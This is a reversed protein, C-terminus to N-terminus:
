FFIHYTILILKPFFYNTLFIAHFLNIRNRELIKYSAGNYIPCYLRCRWCPPDWSHVDKTGQMTLFCPFNNWLHVCIKYQLTSDRPPLTFVLRIHFGSMPDMEWMFFDIFYEPWLFINHSYEFNDFNFGGQISFLYQHM